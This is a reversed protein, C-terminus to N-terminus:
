ESQQPVRRQGLLLDSLYHPLDGSLLGIGRGAMEDIVVFDLFEDLTYRMVVAPRLVDQSDGGHEGRGPPRQVVEVVM